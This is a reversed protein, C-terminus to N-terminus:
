WFGRYFVLVVFAHRALQEDLWSQRAGAPPDLHAPIDDPTQAPELLSCDFGGQRPRVRVREQTCLDGQCLVLGLELAGDDRREALAEDPDVVGTVRFSSGREDNLWALAAAVEPRLISPIEEVVMPM